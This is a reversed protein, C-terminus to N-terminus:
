NSYNQIIKKLKEGLYRGVIPKSELIEKIAKKINEANLDALDCVHDCDNGSIWIGIALKEKSTGLYSDSIAQCVVLRWLRLESTLEQNSGISVGTYINKSLKDTTLMSLVKCVTWSLAKM